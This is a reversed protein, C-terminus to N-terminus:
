NFNESLNIGNKIVKEIPKLIDKIKLPELFVKQKTVLGKFKKNIIFGRHIREFNDNLHESIEKLNKSFRHFENKITYLNSYTGDAEIFYIDEYKIYHEGYKNRLLLTDNKNLYKKEFIELAIEIKESTFPKDIFDIADIKFSNIAYNIKISNVIVCPVHINNEEILKILDFGSEGNLEIDLFVLHPKHKKILQIAESLNLALGKYDYKPFKDVLYKLKGAIIPFNEVIIYKYKQM